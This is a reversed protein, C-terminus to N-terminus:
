VQQVRVADRGVQGGGRGRRGGPQGGRVRLDQGDVPLPARDPVAAALVPPGGGRDEPLVREPQDPRHGFAVAAVRREGGPVDGVLQAAVVDVVVGVVGGGREPLPQPAPVARQLLQVAGPGGREPRLVVGAPRLDQRRAQGGGEGVGGLLEVELPEGGVRELVVQAGLALDQVFEGRVDRDGGVEHHHALGLAHVVGVPGALDVEDGVVVVHLRPRLRAVLQRERGVEGARQGAAPR